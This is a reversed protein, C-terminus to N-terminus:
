SSALGTLPVGARLAAARGRSRPEGAFDQYRVYPPNGIVADFRPAPDVGFFDGVHITADHGESRLLSLAAIATEEHLEVGHLTDRSAAGGLAALRAAAALM